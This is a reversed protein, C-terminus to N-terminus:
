LASCWRPRHIIRAIDPWLWREDDAGTRRGAASFPPCPFGGTVLDVRGRWASGDFSELDDWVPAQDLSAEGMRAVLTAAAHADREVYCVTRHDIGALRLGLSFGGYGACLALEHLM